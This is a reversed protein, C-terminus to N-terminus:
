LFYLNFPSKNVKIKQVHIDRDTYVIKVWFKRHTIMVNGKLSTQRLIKIKTKTRKKHCFVPLKQHIKEQYIEVNM